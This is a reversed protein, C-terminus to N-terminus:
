RNEHRTLQLKDSYIIVDGVVIDVGDDRNLWKSTVTHKQVPLNYLACLERPQGNGESEIKMKGVYQQYRKKSVPRHNTFRQEFRVARPAQVKITVDKDGVSAGNKRIVQLAQDFSYRVAKDLSIDTYKFNRDAVERVPKKWYDPIRSFGLVTGLIGSYTCGIVQGAWAGRIKDTLVDRSLTVQAPVRSKAGATVLTLSLFVFLLFRKRNKM